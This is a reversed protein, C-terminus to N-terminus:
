YICDDDPNKDPNSDIDETGYEDSNDKSIEAGNL